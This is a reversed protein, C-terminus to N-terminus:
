DPGVSGTSPTEPEIHYGLRDCALCRNEPPCRGRGSADGSTPTPLFAAADRISEVDDEDPSADLAFFPTNNEDHAYQVEAGQLATVVDGDDDWARVVIELDDSVGELAKRLDGVKM